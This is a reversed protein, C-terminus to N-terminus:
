RNMKLHYIKTVLNIQKSGTKFILEFLTFGFWYLKLQNSQNSKKLFNISGNM